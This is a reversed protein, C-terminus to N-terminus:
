CKESQVIFYVIADTCVRLSAAAMVTRRENANEGDGATTSKSM